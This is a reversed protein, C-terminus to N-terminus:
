SKTPKASLLWRGDDTRKMQFGFNVTEGSDEAFYVVRFNLLNLAPMSFSDIARISVCKRHDHYKLHNANNPYYLVHYYEHGAVDVGPIAYANLQQMGRHNMVCQHMALIKKITPLATDVAAKTKDDNPVILKVQERQPANGPVSGSSTPANQHTAAVPQNLTALDRNLQDMAQKCGGLSLAGIALLGLVRINM